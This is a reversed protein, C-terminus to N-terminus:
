PRGETTRIEAEQVCYSCTVTDDTHEEQECVKEM